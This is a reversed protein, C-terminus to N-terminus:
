VPQWVIDKWGKSADQTTFGIPHIGLMQHYSVWINAAKLKSAYARGDDCLPDCEATLIVASHSKEPSHDSLKFVGM